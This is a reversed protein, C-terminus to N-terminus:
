EESNQALIKLSLICQMYLWIYLILQKLSPVNSKEKQCYM